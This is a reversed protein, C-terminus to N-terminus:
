EAFLRYNQEDEHISMKYVSIGKEIAIHRLIKEHIPSIHRGLYLAVPKKTACIHDQQIFDYSNCTCALRWEEEHKWDNSKHMIVKTPMFCDPCPIVHQFLSYLNQANNESLLKKIIQQQFCWTAYATADFREEGYIVRVLYSKNAKPCNQHNYCSDCTTYNQNRFDYAVAFGKGDDAYYGWMDTSDIKASFCAIHIQQIITSIWSTDGNIQNTTYSLFQNILGDISNQTSFSINNSSLISFIEPPLINSINESSAPNQLLRYINNRVDDKGFVSTLDAIIRKKDFYLLGDFDDNMTHVASFWLQDQEFASINRESCSRYRYLKDPIQNQLYKILPLYLKNQEEISLTEPVVINHILEKYEHDTLEQKSM